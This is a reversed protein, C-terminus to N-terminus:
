FENKGLDAFNWEFHDFYSASYIKILAKLISKSFWCLTDVKIRFLSNNYRTGNRSWLLEIWQNIKVNIRNIEAPRYIMRDFPGKIEGMWSSSQPSRCCFLFLPHVHIVRSMVLRRNDEHFIFNQKQQDVNTLTREGSMNGFRYITKNKAIQQARFVTLWLDLPKQGSCRAIHWSKLQFLIETNQGNAEHQAEM